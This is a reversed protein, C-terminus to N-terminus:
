WGSLPLHQLPLGASSRQMLQPAPSVLQLISQQLYGGAGALYVAGLALKEVNETQEAAPM